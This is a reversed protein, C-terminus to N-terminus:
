EPMAAKVFLSLVINCCLGDWYRRPSLFVLTIRCLLPENPIAHTGRKGDCSDSPQPIVVRVVHPRRCLLPLPNEKENVDIFMMSIESEHCAEDCQPDTVCVLVAQFRDGVFAEVLYDIVLVGPLLIRDVPLSSLLM